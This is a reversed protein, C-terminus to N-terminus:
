WSVYERQQKLNRAGPGPMLAALAPRCVKVVVPMKMMDPRFRFLPSILWASDALPEINYPRTVMNSMVGSAPKTARRSGNYGDSSANPKVTKQQMGVVRDLATDRACTLYARQLGISRPPPSLLM